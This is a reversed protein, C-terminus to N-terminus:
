DQAKDLCLTKLAKELRDLPEVVDMHRSLHILDKLIPEQRDIALKGFLIRLPNQDHWGQLLCENEKSRNVKGQEGLSAFKTRGVSVLPTGGMAEEMEFLQHQSVVYFSPQNVISKTIAGIIVHNRIYQELVSGYIIRQVKTPTVPDTYQFDVPIGHDNTIMVGGVFAGNEYLTTLYGPSPNSM